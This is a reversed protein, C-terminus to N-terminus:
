VEQDWEEDARFVAAVDEIRANNKIKTGNQGEEMIRKVTPNNLIRNVTKPNRPVDPYLVSYFQEGMERVLAKLEAIEADYCKESRDGDTTGCIFIRTFSGSHYDAGCYPCKDM